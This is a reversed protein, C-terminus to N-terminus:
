APPGAPRSSATRFSRGMQAVDAAIPLAVGAGLVTLWLGIGTRVPVVPASLPLPEGVYMATGLVAAAAGAAAVIGGARCLRDSGLALCAGLLVAAGGVLSLTGGTADVGRVDVVFTGAGMAGGPDWWGSGEWWPLSGGLVVLLGAGLLALLRALAGRTWM